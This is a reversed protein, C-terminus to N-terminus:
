IRRCDLNMQWIRCTNKGTKLGMEKIYMKEIVM